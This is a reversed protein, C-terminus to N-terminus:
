RRTAERPESKNWAHEPNNFDQFDLARDRAHNEAWTDEEERVSRGLEYFAAAQLVRLGADLIPADAAPLPALNIGELLIKLLLLGTPALLLVATRRSIWNREVVAFAAISVLLGTSLIFPPFPPRGLTFLLILLYTGQALHLLGTVIGFWSLIPSTALWAFALGLLWLGGIRMTWTLALLPHAASTDEPLISHSAIDLGSGVCIVAAAVKLLVSGRFGGGAEQWRDTRILLSM